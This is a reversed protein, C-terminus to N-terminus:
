RIAATARALWQQADAELLPTMEARVRAQYANLWDLEIPELMSPDILQRDIPVLTLERLSLFGHEAKVIECLNEIRIGYRGACYYGPENTLTMGAEIPAPSAAKMLRQPHEHVSLFHGVGHGTGHDYDLGYRWLPERALADIQHGYTGPPFRAAALRAHGKLVLTFNRRIEASPPAFCVTRTTDTTGDLYQGGSDILYISGRRIPAGGSQPAAYHCMAANGDAASITRFSPYIFDSLERRYSLIVAEAEHETVPRNAADREPVTHELWALFRIWAVSDRRSSDRLGALESDNKVAKLRTLPDAQIVPRGGAARTVEVAGVPAFKPDISVRVGARVRSHLVEFLQGPAHLRVGNLEYRSRDEVFKREDVCLDVEGADSILAMAHPVPTYSVDDGRVNLLWAINDPQTEVLVQVRQAKLRQALRARKDESREGARDLPYPHIAGHQADPRDTWVSDIPNSALAALRVDVQAAADALADYVSPSLVAPDYGYAQGAEANGLLWQELPQDYLHQYQFHEPSVQEHAQVTYRGDVFLVAEDLTILAMGWSGTFGSIWALREDRPSVYEGQYADWRPVLLGHLGRRRLEARLAQLRQPSWGAAIITQNIM